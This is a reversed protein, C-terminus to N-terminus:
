RTAAARLYLRADGQEARRAWGDGLELLGALSAHRDVVIADIDFGRVKARWTSSASAISHQDDRVKPPYAAERQDMFVALHSDGAALASGCWELRTCLVRHARGDSSLAAVVDRPAADSASSRAASWGGFAVVAIFACSLASALAASPPRVARMAAQAIVPAAVIGFLPLLRGDLLAVVLMGLTALIDGKACGRLGFFTAALLCASFGIRYALPAVSVPGPAGGFHFALPALTVFAAGAPTLFLALVCGAVALWATRTAPARANAREDLTRGAAVCAALCPAFFGAASLNCWLVALLVASVAGIPRRATLALVFAAAVLWGLAGSGTRLSSLFTAGAFAAAAFAFFESASRRARFEVLALAGILACASTLTVAVLGGAREFFAELVSTLWGLAGTASGPASFAQSGLTTAIGQNALTRWGLWLQEDLGPASISFFASLLITAALLARLLWIM